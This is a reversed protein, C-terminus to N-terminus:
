QTHREDKQSRLAAKKLFAHTIGITVTYYKSGISTKSEPPARISFSGSANPKM